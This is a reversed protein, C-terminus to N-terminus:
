NKIQLYSVKFVFSKSGNESEEMKGCLTIKQASTNLKM